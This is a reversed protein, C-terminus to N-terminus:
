FSDANINQYAAVKQEPTRGSPNGSLLPVSIVTNADTSVKAALHTFGDKMYQAPISFFAHARVTAVTVAGGVNTKSLTIYEEGPSEAKVNVVAGNASAAVNELAVEICAVLGAADVFEKADVDTAAANTFTTDNVVVKDGVGSATLDITAELVKTNAEIRSKISTGASDKIAEADTGDSDKAQYVELMAYTADAMAGVELIFLGEERGKMPIYEGIVNNNNLAQPKLAMDLKNNELIRMM